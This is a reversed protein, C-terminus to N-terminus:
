NKRAYTTWYENQGPRSDRNSYAGCGHKDFITCRFYNSDDIMSFGGACGVIEGIEAIDSSSWTFVAFDDFQTVEAEAKEYKM